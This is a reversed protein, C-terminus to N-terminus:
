TLEVKAFGGGVKVPSIEMFGRHNRVLLWWQGSIWSPIFHSYNLQAFLAEGYVLGSYCESPQFFVAAVLSFVRVDM